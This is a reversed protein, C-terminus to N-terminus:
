PSWVVVPPLRLMGLAPVSREPSSSSSQPWVPVVGDGPARTWHGEGCAVKPPLNHGKEPHAGQAGEKVVKLVDTKQSLYFIWFWRPPRFAAM